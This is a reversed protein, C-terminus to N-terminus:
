PLNFCGASRAVTGNCHRQIGAAHPRRATAVPVCGCHPVQQRPGSLPCNAGTRAYGCVTYKTLNKTLRRLLPSDTEPTGFLVNFDSPTGYPIRVGTVATFPRHGPGRSSRSWAAPSPLPRDAWPDLGDTLGM